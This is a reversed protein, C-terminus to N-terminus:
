YRTSRRTKYENAYKLGYQVKKLVVFGESQEPYVEEDMSGHALLIRWLRNRQNALLWEDSITSQKARAKTLREELCGGRDM